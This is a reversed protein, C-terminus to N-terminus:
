TEFTNPPVSCINSPLFYQPKCKTKLTNWPEQLKWSSSLHLYAQVLLPQFSDSKLPLGQQSALPKGAELNHTDKQGTWCATNIPKGTEKRETKLNLSCTRSCFCDRREREWTCPDFFAQWAWPYLSLWPYSTYWRFGSPPMRHAKQFADSVKLKGWEWM